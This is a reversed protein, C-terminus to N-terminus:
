NRAAQRSAKPPLTTGDALFTAQLCDRLAMRARHLITWLNQQSIQMQSCIEPSSVGELERLIFVQRIREPLKAACAHFSAMFERRDTKLVQEPSWDAPLRDSQYNWHGDSSFLEGEEKEYFAAAAQLSETRNKKRYHDIVKNKLIGTLWTKVTSGGRFQARGKIAALFTEQVLDEALAQNNVRLQAYRFLADGYAEVWASPNDILGEAEM